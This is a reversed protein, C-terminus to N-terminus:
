LSSLEEPPKRDLHCLSPSVRREPDGDVEDHEGHDIGLKMGQEDLPPLLREGALQRKGPPEDVDVLPQLLGRRSLETFLGPEASGM